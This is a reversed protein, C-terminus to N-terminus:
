RSGDPVPHRRSRGPLNDSRGASKRPSRDDLEGLSASRADRVLHWGLGLGASILRAGSCDLLDCAEDMSATSSSGPGASDAFRAEALRAALRADDTVALITFDIM